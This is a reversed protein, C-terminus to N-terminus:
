SGTASVLSLYSTLTNRSFGFAKVGRILQFVSQVGLVFVVRLSETEDPVSRDFMVKCDITTREKRSVSSLLTNKAYSGILWWIPDLEIIVQLIWVSPCMFSCFLWEVLMLLIVITCCADRRTTAGIRRRFVTLLIVRLVMIANSSWARSLTLKTNKNDDMGFVVLRYSPCCSFWELHSLHIM